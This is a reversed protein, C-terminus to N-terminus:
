LPEVTQTPDTEVSLFTDASQQRDDCNHTKAGWLIPAFEDFAFHMALFEKAYMTLSMQGETFRQSGFTVPAYTKKNGENTETYAEILLVYGAAHERAVCM